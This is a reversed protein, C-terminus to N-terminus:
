QVRATGTAEETHSMDGIMTLESRDTDIELMTLSTGHIFPPDWLSDLQAGSFHNILCKKVVGHTVILVHGNPHAAAIDEVAGLIREKLMHFSEGSIPEFQSPHEYYTKLQDAFDKEIDTSLMGQWEGVNIERLDEKQILPTTREGIILQATHITRGSTSSYVADLPVDQLRKGLQKAAEAGTVTLPSDAWGQMRSQINWETQGHRTIYLTLM